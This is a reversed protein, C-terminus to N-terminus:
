LTQNSRAFEARWGSSGCVDVSIAPSTTATTSRPTSAGATPSSRGPTTATRSARAAGFLKLREALARVDVSFTIPEQDGARVFQVDTEHVCDFAAFCSVPLTLTAPASKSRGVVHLLLSTTTDDADDSIIEERAVDYYDNVEADVDVLAAGRRM